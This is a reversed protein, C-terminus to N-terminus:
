AAMAWRSSRLRNIKYALVSGCSELCILSVILTFDSNSKFEASSDKITDKIQESDHPGGYDAM